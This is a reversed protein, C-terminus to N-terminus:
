PGFALSWRLLFSDEPQANEVARHFRRILAAFAWPNVAGSDRYAVQATVLQRWARHTGEDVDELPCVDPLADDLLLRGQRDPRFSGLLISEVLSRRVGRL